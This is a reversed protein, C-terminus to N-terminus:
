DWCVVLALMALEDGAFGDPDEVDVAVLAGVVPGAVVNGGGATRTVEAGAVVTRAGAGPVAEPGGFRAAALGLGAAVADAAEAGAVEVEAAAALLAAVGEVLAAPVGTVLGAVGCVLEGTFPAPPACPLATSPVAIGGHGATAAPADPFKVLAPVVDGAGAPVLGHGDAPFALLEASEAESKVVTRGATLPPL